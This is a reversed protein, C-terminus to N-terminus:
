NRDIIEFMAKVKEEDLGATPKLTISQKQGTTLETANVTLLGDVDLQFSVRIRPGYAKMMPIDSLIFQGLSRCNDVADSEGQLIHISLNVQNDVSTTFDQAMHCPLPTNRPIIKEVLGGMTEIGLSLPTVDLLLTDSGVTLAHAQLAAGHAVVEDPNIDTLPPKGFFTAVAKQLCQLRTSGGVLVVGEIDSTRLAADRLVNHCVDLARDVFPQSLQTLESRTLAHGDIDIHDTDSLKEKLKRAKQTDSFKCHTCIANDIDDGGLFTD